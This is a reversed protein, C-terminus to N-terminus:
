LSGTAVIFLSCDVMHCCQLIQDFARDLVITFSTDDLSMDKLDSGPFEEHVDAVLALAHNGGGFKVFRFGDLDAVLYFDEELAELVVLAHNDERFFFRGLALVPFFDDADEFAVTEDLALDARDDFAAEGDIDAHFSEKGRRLDVDDRRFVELLEDAVNVIEFDDLDVLVAFIYDEAAALDDLLLAGLLALSEEAFDVDARLDGARDFVDGVETREDVEVADVAEQMDGVHGPGAEIVRGFEDFDALLEGDLNEVDVLFFLANRKTELLHLGIRPVLDLLAEGNALLDGALDRVEHGVAREDLDLVADFAEDMDGFERPGLAHRTGGIHEGEALLDLRDNEANVFVLLFDREADALEFRIRPVLDLKAVHDALLDLALDAVHGGVAREHFELFADVAHNVHGVEGPGAFDIMWALHEFFAVVEFGDDEVDVLRVLADAQADLLEVLIRPLFDVAAEADTIEDLAGDRFEGVEAGEDLELVVDVAEHV